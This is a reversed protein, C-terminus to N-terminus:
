RFEYQVFKLGDFELTQIPLPSEIFLAFGRSRYGMKMGDLFQMAASQDKFDKVVPSDHSLGAQFRDCNKYGYLIRVRIARNEAQVM